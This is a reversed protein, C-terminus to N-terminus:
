LKAYRILLLFAVLCSRTSKGVQVNAYAGYNFRILVPAPDPPKLNCHM